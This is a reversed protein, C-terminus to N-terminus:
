ITIAVLNTISAVLINIEYGEDYRESKYAIYTLTTVIFCALFPTPDYELICVKNSIHMHHWDFTM